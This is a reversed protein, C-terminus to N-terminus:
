LKGLTEMSNKVAGEIKDLEKKFEKESMNLSLATEAGKLVELDKDTLIGTM